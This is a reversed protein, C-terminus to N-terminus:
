CPRADVVATDQAEHVCGGSGFGSRLPVAAEVEGHDADAGGRAPQGRDLRQELAQGRRRVHREDDDQVQRRLVLAVGRRDQLQRGAHRHRLDVPPHLDLAVVDVHNRRGVVQRHDVARQRQGIRLPRAAPMDDDVQEEAREGLRMALAGDADDEGAGPGVARGADAAQLLVAADDHRLQGLIGLVVAHRAAGDGGALDVDDQRDGLNRIPQDLEPAVGPPDLDGIGLLHRRGDLRRRHRRDRFLRQAVDHLRQVLAGAVVELVVLPRGHQAPDLAAQLDVAQRVQDGIPAEEGLATSSGFARSSSRSM